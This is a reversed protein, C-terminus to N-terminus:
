KVMHPAAGLQGSAHWVVLKALAYSNALFDIAVSTEDIRVVRGTVKVGQNLELSAGIRRFLTFSVAGEGLHVGRVVKVGTVSLDIVEVLKDGIRAMLGNGPSRPKERREDRPRLTSIM